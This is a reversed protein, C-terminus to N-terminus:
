FRTAFKASKKASALAAPQQTYPAAPSAGSATGHVWGSKRPPTTRTMPASPRPSRGRTAPM